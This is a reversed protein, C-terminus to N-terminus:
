IMLIGGYILVSILITIFYVSYYILKLIRIPVVNNLKRLILLGYYLKSKIMNTYLKWNMNTYIIVGLLKILKKQINLNNYIIISLKNKNNNFILFNTNRLNTTLKNLSIWTDLHKLITNMDNEM